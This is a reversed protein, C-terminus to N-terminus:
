DLTSARDGEFGTFLASKHRDISQIYNKPVPYEAVQMDDTIINSQAKLHQRDIGWGIQGPIRTGRGMTGPKNDFAVKGPSM